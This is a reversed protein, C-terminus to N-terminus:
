IMPLNEEICEVLSSYDAQKSQIINTYGYSMLTETTKPGISFILVNKPIEIKSLTATVASSCTFVIADEYLTNWKIEKEINDYLFVLDSEFSTMLPNWKEENGKITCILLHSDKPIRDILLKCLEESTYYEPCYDPYIGYKILEKGTSAGIVFFKINSLSRIDIHEKKLSQFFCQVGFKSSFIIHTYKSPIFSALSDQNMKLDRVHYENVIYGLTMLEDSLRSSDSSVRSFAISKKQSLFDLKEHLNIVNGVVILCPSPFPDKQFDSLVSGLTSVLVKQNPYSGNYIIAIPFSEDKFELLKNVISELSSLAMMFVTTENDKISAFDIDLPEDNKGHATLIRIQTAVARHTIPIGATALGGIFSPIGPIVEFPIHADYLAIGEEGGRGFVFCDGGKLRVVIKHEKSKQILLSNIEEQKMTHHKNEKGVYICECNEKINELLKMNILRDYIICDAKKLITAGYVSIYGAHGSGAGILYVM